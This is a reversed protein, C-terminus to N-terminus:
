FKIVSRKLGTSVTTETTSSLPFFHEASLKTNVNTGTTIYLLYASVSLEEGEKYKGGPISPVHYLNWALDYTLTCIPYVNSKNERSNAQRTLGWSVGAGVSAPENYEAAECNSGGNSTEPSVSPLAAVSGKVLAATYWSTGIELWLGVDFLSVADSLDAYGISGPQNRVDAVLESGKSAQIDVKSGEENPWSTNESAATTANLEKWPAKENANSCTNEGTEEMCGLFRKFAATTGSSSSRAILLPKVECSSLSSGFNVGLILQSLKHLGSRWAAALLPGDVIAEENEKTPTCGSPTSILVTVASQAVPVTVVSSGSVKKMLAEQETSAGTDSGIFAPFQEGATELKFEDKSNNGWQEKGKGSSTSNYTVKVTVGCAGGTAGEFAPIFVNTQAKLQLSSGAGAIATCPQSALAPSSVGLALAGSCACALALGRGFLKGVM